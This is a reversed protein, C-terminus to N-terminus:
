ESHANARMGVVEDLIREAVDRKSM